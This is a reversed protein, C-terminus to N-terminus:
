NQAGTATAATDSQLAAGTHEVHVVAQTYAEYDAALKARADSWTDATAKRADKLSKELAKEKVHLEKVAAKYEDRARAELRNASRNLRDVSQQTSKVRADITTLVQERHEMASSRLESTMTATDLSASLGANTNANQAAGVALGNNTHAQGSSQTAASANVGANAQVGRNAQIQASTAANTAASSAASASAAPPPPPPPLATRASAAANNATNLACNVQVQALCVPVASVAILTIIASRLTNNTKTHM